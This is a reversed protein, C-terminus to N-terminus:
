VQHERLRVPRHPWTQRRDRWIRKRNWWIVRASQLRLVARPLCRSPRTLRETAASYGSWSARSAYAIPRCSAFRTLRTPRSSRSRLAAAASVLMAALLLCAVAIVHPVGSQKVILAATYGGVGFFAAHGFSLMGCYGLLINFSVAYLAFALVEISIFIWFDTLGFPLAVLAATAALPAAHRANM